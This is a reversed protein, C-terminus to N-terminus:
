QTISGEGQYSEVFARALEAYMKGPSGGEAIRQLSDYQTVVASDNGILYNVVLMRFRAYMNIREAQEYNQQDWNQFLDLDGGFYQAEIKQQNWVKLDSDFIAQQYTAIADDYNGILSYLDGISAAQYKYVPEDYRIDVLTYESGNWMWIHQETLQPMSVMAALGGAYGGRLVLEITGNIDVDGLKFDGNYMLARGSEWYLRGQEFLPHNIEKAMRNVFQDGDWEFVRVNLTYDNMGWFETEVVLEPLANGNLDAITLRLVPVRPDEPYARLLTQYSEDSCGLVELVPYTFIVEAVGDKTLDQQQLIEELGKAALASRVEEISGGESLFIRIQELEQEGISGATALEPLVPDGEVPCQAPAASTARSLPAFNITPTPGPTSTSTPTMSPKATPLTPTITPTNSATPTVRNTPTAIPTLTGGQCDCSLDGGLLCGDPPAFPHIKCGLSTQMIEIRKYKDNDICDPYAGILGFLDGDSDLWYLSSTTAWQWNNALLQLDYVANGDQRFRLVTSNAYLLEMKGSLMNLSQFREGFSGQRKIDIDEFHWAEIYFFIAPYSEGIYIEPSNISAKGQEYQRNRASHIVLQFVGDQNRKTPVYYHHGVMSNAKIDEPCTRVVLGDEDEELMPIYIIHLLNIEDSRLDGDPQINLTISEGNPACGALLLGVFLYLFCIVPKRLRM